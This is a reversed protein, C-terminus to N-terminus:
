LKWSFGTGFIWGDSIFSVEGYWSVDSHFDWQTGLYAGFSSREELNFSESEDWFEFDVDIDGNLTYFFPGGYFSLGDTIEWTPGAAIMIENYNLEARYDEDFYDWDTLETFDMTGSASVKSWQTEFVAGFSLADDQFLTYDAGFGYVVDSGFKMNMAKNDDLGILAYIDFNDTVGYSPKVLLKSSKLRCTTEVAKTYKTKVDFRSSSYEAAIQFQAQKLEAKPPGLPGIAQASVYLNLVLLVAVILVKNKM